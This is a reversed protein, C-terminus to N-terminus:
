FRETITTFERHICVMLDAQFRFLIWAEAWWSTIEIYDKAELLYLPLMVAFHGLSWSKGAVKKRKGTTAQPAQPKYTLTPM